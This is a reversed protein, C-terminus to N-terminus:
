ITSPQLRKELLLFQRLPRAGAAEAYFAVPGVWPIIARAHGQAALDRLCRLLLLRGFGQGRHEPDTGMPGFSGTGLNNCDYAAFAVVREGDLALHLPIPWQVFATEVEAIWAPWHRALLARLRERDEVTARRLQKEKENASPLRTLDVELNQTEGVIQYGAARFFDQARTYRPDLGPVLYNPPSSGLQVRTFGRLAFQRECHALLSRGLGRGQAEPTVAMLKVVGIQEGARERVVGVILGTPASAPGSHVALADEFRPDGWLKEGVLAPHLPEHILTRRLLDLLAGTQDPRLTLFPGHESM